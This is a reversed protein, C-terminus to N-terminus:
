ARSIDRLTQLYNLVDEKTLVGLLKGNTMVTLQSGGGKEIEELASSLQQDPHISKIKAIPIMAQEATVVTREESPVKKIQELTLLGKAKEGKEVVFCRRGGSVIHQDVLEQLPTNALISTYQESMAQSVTRGALLERVMVQNIEAVAARQLFWGILAVWLGSVFNGALVLWVGLFIFFFAIFRGVNGATMTAQRMNKTVGWVMAHFIRGGDLPFGPILNFFALWINIISLYKALALLPPVERFLPKLTSFIGGLTISVIPGAIAIWFEAVANPSQTSIQAVGGFIFLTIRRVPMKYSMAVVSHGLEHLLVSVFLMIATVAGMFWYLSTSWDKFEEPYYGVALTWTLLGFIWFWSYDLRIPIGMIRGLPLTNRTM